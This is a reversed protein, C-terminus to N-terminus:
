DDFGVRRPSEDIDDIEGMIEVANIRAYPPDFGGPVDIEPETTTDAWCRRDRSTGFEIYRMTTFFNDEISDDVDLTVILRLHKM